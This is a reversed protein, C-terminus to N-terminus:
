GVHGEHKDGCLPPLTIDVSVFIQRLFKRHEPGGKILAQALKIDKPGIAAYECYDGNIHTIIHNLMKESVTKLLHDNWEIGYESIYKDAMETGIIGDAKLKIIDSPIEQVSVYGENEM